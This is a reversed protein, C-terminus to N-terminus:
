SGKKGGIFVNIFRGDGLNLSLPNMGAIFTPIKISLMDSFSDLHHRVLPNTTDKFYTDLVHRAIEM